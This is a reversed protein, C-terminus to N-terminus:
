RRLHFQVTLSYIVSVPEGGLTAPEFRWTEVAEIAQKDLLPHIGKLLTLDQVEGQRDIVAELIVVGQLGLRRVIEPYSPRRGEIRVPRVMSSDNFQVPQEPTMPPPASPMVFISDPDFDIDTVPQPENLVIPEPDTPDPDPIPVKRIKVEPIQAPPPPTFGPTPSIRVVPRDRTQVETEGRVEPVKLAFFLAHIVLALIVTYRLPRDDSQAEAWLMESTSPPPPSSNAKPNM